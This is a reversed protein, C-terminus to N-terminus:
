KKILTLHPKGVRAPPTKKLQIGRKRQEELRKINDNFMNNKTIVSNIIFYIIVAREWEKTADFHQLRTHYKARLTSLSAEDLALIQDAIKELIKEIM